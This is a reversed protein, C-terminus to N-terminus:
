IDLHKFRAKFGGELCQNAYRLYRRAEAHELDISLVQQFHDIAQAYDEKKYCDYGKQFDINIRVENLLEKITHDRPKFELARVLKPLAAEEDNSETEKSARQFLDGGARDRAREFASVAVQFNGQDKLENEWFALAAKLSSDIGQGVLSDVEKQYEDGLREVMREAKKSESAISQAAKLKIAARAIEGRELCSRATLIIKDPADDELEFARCFHHIASEENIGQAESVGLFFCADSNYPSVKLVKEWTEAARSFKGENLQTRGIHSLAIVNGPELRAITRNVRRSEDEMGEIDYLESLIKCIKLNNGDLDLLKEYVKITERIRGEEKLHEAQILLSDIKRKRHIFYGLLLALAAGGIAVLPSYQKLYVRNLSKRAERNSPDAILAKKFWEVSQSNHGMELHFIGVAYMAEALKPDIELSKKWFSLAVEYNKKEYSTWGEHLLLLAPKFNLKQIRHSISDAIYINGGGDITLGNPFIFEDINQGGHGLQMIPRGTSDFKQIRGNGSDAVYVNEEDDLAIGIPSRLEGLGSGAKGFHRLYRGEGSLVQVRHNGTDSIWLNGERDVAIRAPEVFRGKVSGVGGWTELLQGGPSFKLIRGDGTNVVYLNGRDDFAIGGPADLVAKLRKDDPIRGIYEGSPAYIQIRNNGTDAVYIDGAPSLAVDEPLHLSGRGEGSKGLVLVPRDNDDFVQVRHNLTDAVYIRGFSDVFIGSPHRFKGEETGEAGITRVVEYVRTKPAADPSNVFFLAMLGVALGALLPILSVAAGNLRFLRKLTNKM